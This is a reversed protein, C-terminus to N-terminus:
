LVGMARDYADTPDETATDHAIVNVIVDDNDVTMWHRRKSDFYYFMSDKTNYWLDGDNPSSPPYPGSIDNM